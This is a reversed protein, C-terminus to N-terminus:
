GEEPDLHSVDGIADGLTTKFRGTRGVYKLLEKIKDLSALIGKLDRSYRGLAKDLDFREEAYAQCEFLYHIVTEIISGRRADWCNACRRTDSKKICHLYSNLPIHGTRLQILLSSQSRSLVSITKRFKNFPFASDIHQFRAFRPSTTWAELWRAKQTEAFEQKLASASVPLRKRLIPPLEEDPSSEGQAARKAEEDVRENGTVGEHAAIWKLAFKPTGIPNPIDTGDTMTETLKLYDLVLYQGPGAGRARTAKIFAQSDSYSSVTLKGVEPRGQLMWAALISGVAEGEFTTHKKLSGLHFRLIREPEERGKRYLVAAAGVNGEYGSGDTYVKIDSNDKKEEKISEEKSEAITTTFAIEYTPLRPDPKITEIRRPRIKFREILKQLPTLHTKAPTKSYRRVMARIPHGDPLTAARVITGHCIRELMLNVPLVGAHADLLDNPSTRLGGTIALTAIRQIKGMAKQARVSGSNNRKGEKKHPPVFWVDLAYTMKPIAVSIYLQRMLRPRIGLSTRTLRRFMLIYATAKAMAENEQTRWRLQSDLHVGLYKYTTVERIVREELRLTPHPRDTPKRAVPQCHMIVIKSIEFKSNHDQAWELGGERREMFNKLARTTGTFTKATTIVLADDVYGIANEGIRRLAELLDANYIIYLLMSIPDGQGIGNAIEILESIFDDFKMRTKRGKLLREVFKVYATPIRRKRLNHILTDTVANPFAGEVDLFLISAVKKSGWAAKVKDVLYHIADTTTRGPRGGFHTDPLLTNKEVLHGIDEAVIATLVKPITCLLAIPRYAKPVEYDTKGPKRLVATTFEQWGQFYTRLTFIGRFLHILHDLIQEICKQLVVNPVEDPSCTKFPSLRKIQCVVQETTIPPPPPLPEPYDYNEPTRSIDPKKPFFLRALAKAKGDNTNVERVLGNPGEDQVKLTPIRSKGGDGTPERFYRNATWLDQEAANELFEEWHRRKAEIIAEGYENRAKRLELHSEHDTLARYRYALRSLKKMNTKKRSLDNNWWRKSFPCPKNVPVRTRITDQLVATLNEAAEQFQQDTRLPQPAPIELLRIALNEQFDEWDVVRFNYSAKPVVREQPLTIYTAIPFHDTGPPRLSPDVECRVILDYIDETCWFNDPRSYKKTVLHELTPQGKPLAMKLNLDALLEILKGAEELARPTFLRDDSEEDWMPHHRNFDGALILHDDARSLMETRNLRLYERVLRLTRAHTCDNYINIITLRGYAGALQIATIDNTGPVNLIKWSSTALDSSIWAVARTTPASDKYRDVPAVAVYGNPTRINGMATVYPEQVLVVDWDKRSVKNYM